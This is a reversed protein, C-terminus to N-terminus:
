GAFGRRGGFVAAPRLSPQIWFPHAYATRQHTLNERIAACFEPRDHWIHDRESYGPNGLLVVVPADKRGLFPEPMLDLQLRHPAAARANHRDVAERDMGLVYPAVEPLATWPNEM